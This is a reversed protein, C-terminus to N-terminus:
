CVRDTRVQAPWVNENQSRIIQQLAKSVTGSQKNVIPQAFIKFSFRDCCILAYKYNPIGRGRNGTSIFQALDCDFSINRNTFITPITKKQQKTVRFPRHRVYVHSSTRLWDKVFKKSIKSDILKAQRYLNEISGFSGVGGLKYYISKLLDDKSSNENSM